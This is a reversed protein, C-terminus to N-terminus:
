ERVVGRRMREDTLACAFLRDADAAGGSSVVMCVVLVVSPVVGAWLVEHVISPECVFAVNLTRWRIIEL